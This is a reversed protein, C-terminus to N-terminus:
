PATKRLLAALVPDNLLPRHVQLAGPDPDAPGLLGLQGDPLVTVDLYALRIYSSEEMMRRLDALIKDWGPIRAGAIRVATDPHSRHHVLRGAEPRVAAGLVGNSPNVPASLAGAGLRLGNTTDAQQNDILVSAAILRPSWDSLDRALLLSIHSRGSPYLAGLFQGQPPMEAFLYSQGEASSIERVLASLREMNGQTGFGEFQGRDLHVVSRRGGQGARLPQVLVTLPPAAPHGDAHAQWEATLGIEHAQWGRLAHIRPVTFYSSLAHTMLMRDEVVPAYIENVRSLLAAQVDSLYREPDNSEFGYLLWKDRHFGRLFLFEAQEPPSMAAPQRWFGEAFTKWVEHRQLGSLTRIYTRHDVRLPHRTTRAM